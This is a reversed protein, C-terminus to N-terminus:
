APEVRLILADEVPRVYYRSRRGVEVFGEGAYLRRAAGNSERVELFLVRVGRVRAEVRAARLLQRGLGLGRREPSVALNALDGDMDALYVITYGVIGVGAREAVLFIVEPRGVLERFSSVPWPDSFSEGEIRAVSAVDDHTAPRLVLPPAGEADHRRETLGADGASPWAGAGV